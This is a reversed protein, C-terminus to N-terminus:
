WEEDRGFGIPNPLRFIANGDADLLGTEIPDAVPVFIENRAPEAWVDDEIFSAPRNIAYRPM